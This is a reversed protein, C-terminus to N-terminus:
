TGALPRTHLRARTMGAPRLDDRRTRVADVGSRARDRGTTVDVLVAATIARGFDLKGFDGRRVEVVDSTLSEIWRTELDVAVVSGGPTVMKALWRTIDGGGAGVELCRWGRSVGAAELVEITLWGHYAFLLAMRRREVDDPETALVYETV